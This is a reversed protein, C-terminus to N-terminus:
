CRRLVYVLFPRVASEFFAFATMWAFLYSTAQFFSAPDAFFSLPRLSLRVKQAEEGDKLPAGLLKMLEAPYEIKVAEETDLETEVVLDSIHQAIIRRLLNYSSLQVALSPDQLLRLLQSPDRHAPTPPLSSSSSRVQSFSKEMSLLKPPLDRVLKAMTEVVLERPRDKSASAASVLFDATM